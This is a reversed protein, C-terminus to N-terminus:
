RGAPGVNGLPGGGNRDDPVANFPGRAPIQAGSGKIVLPQAFSKPPTALELAPAAPLPNPGPM